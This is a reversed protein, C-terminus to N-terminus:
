ELPDIDNFIKVFTCNVENDDKDQYEDAMLDIGQCNKTM